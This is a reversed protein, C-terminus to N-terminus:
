PRLVRYIICKRNLQLQHRVQSSEEQLQQWQFFELPVDSHILEM